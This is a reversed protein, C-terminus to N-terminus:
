FRDLLDDFAGAEIERAIETWFVYLGGGQGETGSIRYAGILEHLRRTVAALVATDRADSHRSRAGPRRKLADYTRIAATSLVLSM